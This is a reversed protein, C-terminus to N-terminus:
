GNSEVEQAILDLADGTRKRIINWCIGCFYRFGDVTKPSMHFMEYAARFLDSEDLGARHLRIISGRTEPPLPHRKNTERAMENWYEAFDCVMEDVADFEQESIERDAYSARRFADRFLEALADVEAVQEDNPNTSSKGSNCDRCATALNSSSDDGGLAVPVVHDITLQVDPAAAGCYRCRHGDRKLIEYRLRRSISRTGNSM